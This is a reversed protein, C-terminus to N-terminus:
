YLLVYSPNLSITITLNNIKTLSKQLVHRIRNGSISFLRFFNLTPMAPAPPNPELQAAESALVPTPVRTM